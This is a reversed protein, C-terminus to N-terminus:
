SASTPSPRATRSSHGPAPVTELALRWAKGVPAVQARLRDSVDCYAADLDEQTEPTSARAWTLYLMTQAGAERVAGGLLEAYQEFLEPDVIPRLSQEQLVVLDWPGGAPSRM